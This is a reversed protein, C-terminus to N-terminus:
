EDTIKLSRETFCNYIIFVFSVIVPIDTSAAATTVMSTSGGVGSQGAIM